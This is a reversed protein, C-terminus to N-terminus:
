CGLGAHHRKVIEVIKRGFINRDQHRVYTYSQFRAESDWSFYFFAGFTSLSYHEPRSTSSRDSIVDYRM